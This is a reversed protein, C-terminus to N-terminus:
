ISGLSAILANGTRNLQSVTQDLALYRDRQIQEFSLMQLEFNAREDELNTKEDKANQERTRLLGGSQTYERIYDYLNKAIGDDPDTFISAVDDFNNELSEELRDAGSGFGFEDFDTIELKGDDDFSLGIQYLTGLSSGPVNNSIINALTSQLGRVMFDGALAGDEELESEGFRTLRDMEDILTNYDDMFDRIKKDLGDKDNGITLKSVGDPVGDSDTDPSLELVDFAVNQIVNEFRNTSSEVQLGDITATANSAVQKNGNTNLERDILGTSDTSTVRNLDARDDDNKVILDNGDGTLNSTYVLKAGASTGTDIISAIVLPTLGDSQLNASSSNIANALQQLTSGASVNVTFSDTSVGFSFTIAGDDSGSLVTDNPSGFDADSSTYRTGEALGTVVIDYSGELASNSAEATFTGEEGEGLSLSNHHEIQPERANLNFDNRLEDVSDEFKSLKSTLEGLGSIEADLDEERENLRAEKPEREAQILQTVLDDLALGSGVGLSQIGM